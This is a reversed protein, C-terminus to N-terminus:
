ARLPSSSCVILACTRGIEMSITVPIDLIMDLNRDMDPKGSSEPKLDEFAAKEYTQVPEDAPQGTDTAEAQEAMAAAWDDGGESAAQDASGQGEAQDASGEAEAQEAMAAAWDDNVDSEAQTDKTDESM